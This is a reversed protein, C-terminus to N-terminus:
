LTLLIAQADTTLEPVHLSSSTDIVRVLEGTSRRNNFAQVTGCTTKRVSNDEEGPKMDLLNNEVTLKQINSLSMGISGTWVSNGERGRIRNGRIIIVNYVFSSTANSVQLYIGRGMAYSSPSGSPAPLDFINNEIILREVNMPQSSATPVLFTIGFLCNYYYNGRVILDQIEGAPDGNQVPGGTHCNYIRNNEIITGRTGRVFLGTVVKPTLAEPDYGGNVYCGRIVCAEHYYMLGFNSEATLSLAHAKQDHYLSPPDIVCGDIVADFPVDFGVNAYAACIGRATLLSSTSGMNQVQVRRILIHKGRVFIGSATTIQTAGNPLDLNLTIDAIELGFLYGDTSGGTTPMSFIFDEANTTHAIMKIITIGMGAGVIRQGSWVRFGNSNPFGRTLFYKEAGTTFDSPGIFVTSNKPVRSMAWDFRTQNSTNDGLYYYGNWPDNETGSGEAGDRRIAIYFNQQMVPPNLLSDEFLADLLTSM